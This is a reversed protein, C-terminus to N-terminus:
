APENGLRWLQKNKPDKTPPPDEASSPFATSFSTSRRCVASGGTVGSQFRFWLCFDELHWSPPVAMCFKAGREFCLLGFCHLGLCAAWTQTPRTHSHAATNAQSHPQQAHLICQGTHLFACLAGATVPGSGPLLVSSQGHGNRPHFSLLVWSGLSASAALALVQWQQGHWLLLFTILKSSM